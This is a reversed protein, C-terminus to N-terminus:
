AAVPDNEKYVINRTVPITVGEISLRFAIAYENPTSAMGTERFNRQGYLGVTGSTDLWYPNSYRANASLVFSDSVNVVLNEPLPIRSKRIGVSHPMIYELVDVQVQCRNILEIKIRVKEGPCALQEESVAEVYLGACSVIINTIEELKIKRWHDDELKDIL